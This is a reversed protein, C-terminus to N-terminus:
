ATPWYRAKPLAAASRSTAYGDDPNVGSVSKGGGAHLDMLLTLALRVTAQRAKYGQELSARSLRRFSQYGGMSGEIQPMEIGFVVRM